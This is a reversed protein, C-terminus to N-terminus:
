LCSIVAPLLLIDGWPHPGKFAIWRLTSLGSILYGCVLFVAEAPKMKIDEYM